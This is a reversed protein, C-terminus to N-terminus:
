TEKPPETTHPHVYVTYGRSITKAWFEVTDGEAPHHRDGAPGTPIADYAIRDLDILDISICGRDPHIIVVAHPQSILIQQPM